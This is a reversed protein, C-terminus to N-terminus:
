RAALLNALPLAAGVVVLTWARAGWGLVSPGPALFAPACLAVEAVKSPAFLIAGGGHREFM